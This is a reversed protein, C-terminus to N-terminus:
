TGYPSELQHSKVGRETGGRTDYDYSWILFCQWTWGAGASTASGNQSRFIQKQSQRCNASVNCNPIFHSFSTPSRPLRETLRLLPEHGFRTLKLIIVSSTVHYEGKWTLSKRTVIERVRVTEPFVKGWSLFSVKPNTIHEIKSNYHPSSKCSSVYKRRRDKIGEEHGHSRDM